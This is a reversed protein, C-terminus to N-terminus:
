DHIAKLESDSLYLSVQPGFRDSESWVRPLQLLGEGALSVGKSPVLAQTQVQKGKNLPVIRKRKQPAEEEETPDESM